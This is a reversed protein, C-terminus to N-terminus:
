NPHPRGLPYVPTCRLTPFSESFALIWDPKLTCTTPAQPLRWAVADIMEDVRRPEGAAHAVLRTRAIRAATRGAQRATHAAIHAAPASPTSLPSPTGILLVLVRPALGDLEGACRLACQGRQASYSKPTKIIYISSPSALGVELAFLCVNGNFSSPSRCRRPRCSHM